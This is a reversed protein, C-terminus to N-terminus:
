HGTDETILFDSAVMGMHLVMAWQPTHAAVDVTLVIVQCTAVVTGTQDQTSVRVSSALPCKTLLQANLLM